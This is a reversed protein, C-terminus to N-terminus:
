YSFYLSSSNCLHSRIMLATRIESESPYKDDLGSRSFILFGEMLLVDIDNPSSSVLRDFLKGKRGHRRFDGSYFLRQGDAEVLLAYTDYPSHDVLYLTLTFPDLIISTRDKIEIMNDSSVGNPVISVYAYRFNRYDADLKAQRPM